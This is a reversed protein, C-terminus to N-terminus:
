PQEPKSHLSAIYKLYFDTSDLRQTTGLLSLLYLVTGQERAACPRLKRDCKSDRPFLGVTYLATLINLWPLMRLANETGVHAATRPGNLPM